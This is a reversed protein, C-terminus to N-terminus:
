EALTMVFLVVLILIAGLAFVTVAIWEDDDDKKV